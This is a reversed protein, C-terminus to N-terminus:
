IYGLYLQSDGGLMKISTDVKWSTVVDPYFQDIFLPSLVLESENPILVSIDLVM